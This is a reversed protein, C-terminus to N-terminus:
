RLYFSLSYFARQRDSFSLSLPYFARHRNSLESKKKFFGTRLLYLVTTSAGQEIEEREGGKREKEERKARPPAIDHVSYPDAGQTPVMPVKTFPQNNACM